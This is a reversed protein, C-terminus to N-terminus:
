VVGRIWAGVRLAVGAALSGIMLMEMGNRLWNDRTVLSRASGVVFLTGLTTVISIVFDNEGLSVGLWKMYYPFLPMSGAVLFSVFTVVGTHWIGMVKKNKNTLRELRLESKAGLYDGLGMSLGDALLNAAGMILVVSVSLKAGAVGAVVAFTTVIGDNAGFVMAKLIRPSIIM